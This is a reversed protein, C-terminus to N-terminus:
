NPVVKNKLCDIMRKCVFTNDYPDATAIMKQYEHVSDVLRSLERRVDATETGVLKLSGTMVSEPYETIDRLVLVPVSLLPSLEQIIESDTVIIYANSLFAHMSKIENLQLLHINEINEFQDRAREQAFSDHPLLFVVAFSDRYQEAFQKIGRFTKEMPTGLNEKRSMTFFLLKKGSVNIQEVLSQQVDIKPLQKALEMVLSGTVCIAEDEQNELLLNYRNLETPAFHINALTDMVQRNIEEPFPEYKNQTRRGADVHGITIQHYTAALSIALSAVSAGQVLLVNPREECFIQDIKTLVNATAKTYSQDENIVLQYDPVLDFYDMIQNLWEEKTGTLVLVPAFHLPQEQMEKVLPLLKVAEAWTGFAVMVKLKAM